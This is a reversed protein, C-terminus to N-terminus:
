FEPSAGHPYVNTVPEPNYLEATLFALASGGGKRV